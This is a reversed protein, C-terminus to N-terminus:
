LVKSVVPLTTLAYGLAFCAAVGSVSVLAFKLEPPLTAPALLVMVSTLVLPHIVYTAYSGRRARTLLPGGGRLRRRAWAVVWLSLSVAVAGDLFAFLATAPGAAENLVAEAEGRAELVAFLAVTAVGALAAVQGLRRVLSASMAEWWGTEAAHVGLAFLVAGQPWEGLRLSRFAESNWPWVQWVALSALAVLLAAVVLVRAVRSARRAAPAPRVARLAAYALSFALLAGVFWMVSFETDRLTATLSTPENQARQGIYDALPQVVLVFAVLPVGLHLLRRRAFGGPGRRALSRSGLWGAVLFLPGLGFLAGAVVPFSLLTSWLVSTTLEDYYWDAIDTVYATATHVVIVGAVVLVRLSDIWVEHPQHTVVAEPSTM